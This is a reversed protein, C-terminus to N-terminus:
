VKIKGLIRRGQSRGQYIDGRDATVLFAQGVHDVRRQAADRVQLQEPVAVGQDGPGHQVPRLPHHQGPVDVGHRDGIVERGAEVPVQEVAATAAVHLGADRDLQM